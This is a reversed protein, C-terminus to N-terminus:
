APKRAHLILNYFLGRPVFRRLVKEDLATLRKYNDFAFFAWRPGLLGPRVSAEITRVSWGFWNATLEETVVEVEGFGALKAMHEVDDPRFTHLDVQDELAALVADRDETHSGSSPKRWSSLGPLRTVGMFVRWTNHKVLHSIRDGYHTPEGAIVLRGGPALVRYMEQIAKGPVPLHHIFAHGIVLDFSGDEYPLAEADGQTTTIALGHERGNRECVDLMGQSIDTAELTAGELAGGLALNITFFGTGAGVELVREFTADAPVVKRLRDVAYEICREDYSISFKEEYSAAEWDHYAAQKQKLDMADTDAYTLPEASM